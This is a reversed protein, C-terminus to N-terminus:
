GGDQRERGVAAAALGSGHGPGPLPGGLRARVPTCGAPHGRDPDGESVRRCLGAEGRAGRVGLRRVYSGPGTRCLRGDTAAAGSHGGRCRCRHAGRHASALGPGAAVLRRSPGAEGLERPGPGLGSRRAACRRRRGAGRSAAAKRFLGDCTNMTSGLGSPQRGERGNQTLRLSMLRSSSLSMRWNDRREKRRLRALARRPGRSGPTPPLSSRCSRRCRRGGTRRHGPRDPSSRCRLGSEPVSGLARVGLHVAQGFLVVAKGTELESRGLAM